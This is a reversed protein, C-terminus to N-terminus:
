QNKKNPRKDILLDLLLNGLNKFGIGLLVVCILIVGLPANDKILYLFMCDIVFLVCCFVFIVATTINRTM